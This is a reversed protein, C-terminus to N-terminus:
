RLASGQFLAELLFVADSLEVQGSDDADAADLCRPAPAGGFLYGV